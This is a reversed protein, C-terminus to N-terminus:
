NDCVESRTETYTSCPHYNNWKSGIIGFQATGSLQSRAWSFILVHTPNEFFLVYTTYAITAIRNEYVRAGILWGFLAFITRIQQGYKQPITSM